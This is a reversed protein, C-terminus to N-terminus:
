ANLQTEIAEKLLAFHRRLCPARAQAMALDGARGAMEIEHAVHSLADGGVNASAGKIQHARERVGEISGEEVAKMLTLLQLPMEALFAALIRSALKRDGAFRDVLANLDFVPAAPAPNNVLKGPEGTTTSLLGPAQVNASHPLWKALVEVLAQPSTPKSVFDDMGADLCDKRDEQMASATM